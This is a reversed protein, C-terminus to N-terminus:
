FLRQQANRKVAAPQDNREKRIERTGRRVVRGRMRADPTRDPGKVLSSLREREAVPM